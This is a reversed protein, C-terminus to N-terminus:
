KSRTTSGDTWVKQTGTTALAALAFCTNGLATVAGTRRDVSRGRALLMLDGGVLVGRLTALTLAGTRTPRVAIAAQAVTYTGIIGHSWVSLDGGAPGLFPRTLRSRRAVLGVIVLDIVALAGAISRLRAAGAPSM